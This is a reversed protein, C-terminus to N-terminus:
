SFTTHFMHLFIALMNWNETSEDEGPYSAWLDAVVDLFQLDKLAQRYKPKLQFLFEVCEDYSAINFENLLTDKFTVKLSDEEFYTMLIEVEEYDSQLPVHHLVADSYEGLYKDGVEDDLSLRGYRFLDMDRHRMFEEADDMSTTCAYVIYSGGSIRVSTNIDLPIDSNFFGDSDMYFCHLIM